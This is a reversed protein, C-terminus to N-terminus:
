ITNYKFQFFDILDQSTYIGLKNLLNLIKPGVGKIDKLM